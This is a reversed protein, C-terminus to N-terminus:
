PMGTSSTNRRRIFAYIIMLLAIAGGSILYLAVNSGFASETKTEPAFLVRGDSFITAFYAPKKIGQDDLEDKIIAVKSDRGNTFYTLNTKANSLAMNYPRADTQGWYPIMVEKLVTFNSFSANPVIIAVKNERRFNVYIYSTRDDFFIRYPAGSLKVNQMVEDTDTNIIAIKNEGEVSVILRHASPIPRLWVSNQGVPIQKEIKNTAGDIVAVQGLGYLNVYVKNATEDGQILLPFSKPSLPITLIDTDNAGDIVHVTSDGAHSVYIRNTVTNIYLVRPQNGVPIIKVPYNKDLTDIVAVTNDVPSTAYLKGNAKNFGIMQAANVAPIKAIPKQTAGDIVTIINNDLNSIFIRNREEDIAVSQPRSFFPEEVNMNKPIQSVAFTTPNVVFISNAHSHTIFLSNLKESGVMQTPYLDTKQENVVRSAVTDYAFLKATSRNLIFLLHDSQMYWMVLPTSTLYAPSKLDIARVGYDPSIISIIGSSNSAAFVTGQAPDYTMHIPDGGVLIKKIVSASAPDIVYIDDSGIHSVYIKKTVPNFIFNKPFSGVRVKAVIAKQSVDVINIEESKQSLILLHGFSDMDMVVPIDGVTIREHYKEGSRFVNNKAAEEKTKLIFLSNKGVTVFFLKEDESFREVAIGETETEILYTAIPTLENGHIVDDINFIKIDLFADVQSVLGIFSGKPSIVMGRMNQIGPIKKRSFIFIKKVFDYASLTSDANVIFMTSRTEDFATQRAEKIPMDAETAASAWPVFFCFVWVLAILCLVFTNSKM